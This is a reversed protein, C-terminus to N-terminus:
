RLSATLTMISRGEVSITQGPDISAQRTLSSSGSTLYPTFESLENASIGQFDLNIDRSQEGYNIFIIALQQSQEHFYASAMVGDASEEPSLQDSRSMEVRVAGPRIFRSFNGMAWLIKSDYVQGDNMDHDIYVLGDNYDYPSVGLWWQWASANAITLDYHMVRAVYLAPDIGLDRGSGQLGDGVDGLVCFETMWYELDPDTQQIDDWVRRRKEVMEDTPYTTFYSHAAMKPKISTLGKVKSEEGFFFATQNSRGDLNGDYLYDIQATEPIEIQVDLGYERIKEDLASVVGAIEENQYPSGEQGNGESWDWQPENVPSIYSLPTGKEEFYQGIRALYDAFDDYQEAAINANGSGDGFAKGNKTLLVPPSNVFGILTEVGRQHAAELFWRQGQQRSWDYTSDATLFSESRRWPDNIGSENDQRASGAGINFRWASLGIGLPNGESDQETSFLLDAIQERKELPWNKGVFQTSWADSAGFNHVTQYRDQLDITLVLTEGQASDERSSSDCHTLLLLLLLFSFVRGINFM